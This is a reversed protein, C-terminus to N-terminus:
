SAYGEGEGGAEVVEIRAKGCGLQGRKEGRNKEKRRAPVDFGHLELDDDEVGSGRTM